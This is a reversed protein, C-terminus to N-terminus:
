ATRFRWLRSAKAVESRVPVSLHVGDPIVYRGSLTQPCVILSQLDKDYLVGNFAAYHENDADVTFTALSSCGLFDFGSINNVNKSITIGTLGKCMFFGDTITNVSDPIVYQGTKGAPCAILGQKNKDFLVGDESAYQSNEENVTIDDLSYCHAFANRGINTVNKPITINQLSECAFFASEGVETLSDPLDIEPLSSCYYFALASIKELGDPLTVSTLQACKNFANYGINTVGNGIQVSTILDLDNYWPMGNWEFEPMRGTGSIILTGESDLTWTLNDGDVGFTGSDVEEASAFAMCLVTMLLVTLVVLWRTRRRTMEMDEKVRNRATIM